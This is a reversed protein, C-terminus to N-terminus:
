NEWESSTIVRLFEDNNLERCISTRTELRECIGIVRASLYSELNPRFREIITIIAKSEITRNLCERASAAKLVSRDKLSSWTWSNGVLRGHLYIYIPWYLIRRIDNPAIVSPSWRVMSWLTLEFLDLEHGNETVEQDRRVRSSSSYILAEFINHIISVGFLIVRLIRFEYM